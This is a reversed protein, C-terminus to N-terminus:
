LQKGAQGERATQPQLCLILFILKCPSLIQFAFATVSEVKSKTQEVWSGPLFAKGRVRLEGYVEFCQLSQQHQPRSNTANPLFDKGIPCCAFATTSGNAIAYACREQSISIRHSNSNSIKRVRRPSCYCGERVKRLLRNVLHTQSTVFSSGCMAHKNPIHCLCVVECQVYKVM